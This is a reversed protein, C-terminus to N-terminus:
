SEWCYSDWWDKKWHDSEKSIVSNTSCNADCKTPKQSSNHYYKSKLRLCYLVKFYTRGWFVFETFDWLILCIQLSAPNNLDFNWNIQGPSMNILGGSPFHSKPSLNFYFDIVKIKIKFKLTFSIWTIKHLIQFTRVWRWMRCFIIYINYNMITTSLCPHPLKPRNNANSQFM